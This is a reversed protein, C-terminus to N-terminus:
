PTTSTDEPTNIDGQNQHRGSSIVIISFVGSMWLKSKYKSFILTEPLKNPTELLKEIGSSSSPAVSSLKTTSEWDPSEGRFQTWEAERHYFLAAEVGLSYALLSM